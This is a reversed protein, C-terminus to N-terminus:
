KQAPARLNALEAETIMDFVRVVKKVGSVGRAVESSRTAERETVRGMLHVVGRETVVKLASAQLDAADVFSAKVKSTLVADSSRSGVTSAEMVAVENVVNRVNEIQKVANEAAARDADSAAEGTLLVVRNYSTISIHGRGGGTAEHVRNIGKLEISQDELQTGSTRRDVAVMGGMVAGGMVLPFCGSLLQTSVLAALGWARRSMKFNGVLTTRNM